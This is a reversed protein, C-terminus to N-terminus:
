RYFLNLKQQKLGDLKKKLSLIDEFYVTVQTETDCVEISETRLYCNKWQEVEDHKTRAQKISSERSTISGYVYLILVMIGIGTKWGKLHIRSILYMGFFLPSLYTVYRSTQAAEIGLGSRGFAIFFIFLLSYFLLSIIPYYRVDFRKKIYWYMGIGLSGVVAIPTVWFYFMQPRIGIAANIQQCVFQFLFSVTITQPGLYPSPYLGVFYSGLIGIVAVIYYFINKESCGKKFGTDLTVFFIWTNYLGRHTWSFSFICKAIYYRTFSPIEM